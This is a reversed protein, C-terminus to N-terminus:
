QNIYTIADGILDNLAKGQKASLVKTADNTTLNDAIDSTNLNVLQTSTYLDPASGSPATTGYNGEASPIKTITIGETLSVMDFLTYTDSASKYACLRYKNDEVKRLYFIQATSEGWVKFSQVTYTSDALNTNSFRIGVYYPRDKTRRTVGFFLPRNQWSQTMTFELLDVYTATSVGGTSWHYLKGHAHDERAYKTSTGVKGNYYDDELPKTSSATPVSASTIYSSTDISGDNKVM